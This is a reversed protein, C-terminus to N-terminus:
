SKTQGIQIWDEENPDSVESLLDDKEPDPYEEEKPPRPGGQNPDKQNRKDIEEEPQNDDTHSKGSNEMYILDEIDVFSLQLIQERSFAKHSYEEPDLLPQDIFNKM